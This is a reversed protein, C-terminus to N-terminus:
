SATLQFVHSLQLLPQRSIPSVSALTFKYQKQSKGTAYGRPCPQRSIPSASALTFKYQKQSKATASGINISSLFRPSRISRRRGACRSIGADFREPEAHGLGPNDIKGPAGDLNIAVGPFAAVGRRRAHGLAGQGWGGLPRSDRLLGGFLQPPDLKKCLSSRFESPSRKQEYTEWRM